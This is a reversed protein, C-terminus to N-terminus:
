KKRICHHPKDRVEYAPTVSHSRIGAETQSATFCATIDGIGDVRWSQSLAANDVRDASIVTVKNTPTQTTPNFPSNTM